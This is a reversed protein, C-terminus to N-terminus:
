GDRWEKADDIYPDFGDIEPLYGIEESLLGAAAFDRVLWLAREAEESSMRGAPSNYELDLQNEAHQVAADIIARVTEVSVGYTTTIQRINM